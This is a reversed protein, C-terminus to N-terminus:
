RPNSTRPVRCCGSRPRKAIQTTRDAKRSRCESTQSRDRENREDRRGRLSKPHKSEQRPHDPGSPRRHCGQAQTEAPDHVRELCGAVRGGRRATSRGVRGVVLLLGRLADRLSLLRHGVGSPSHGVRLLVGSVGCLVEVVGILVLRALQLVDVLLQGVRREVGLVRRQTERPGLGVELLSPLIAGQTLRTVEVNGLVLEADLLRLVAEILRVGVLCSGTLIGPIGILFADVAAVLHDLRLLSEAVSGVALGVRITTQSIRLPCQVLSVVLLRM